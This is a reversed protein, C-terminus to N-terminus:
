GVLPRRDIYKQWFERLAKRREANDMGHKWFFCPIDHSDFPLITGEEATMIVKISRGLAYGLEIFCSPRESTLDIVALSAFHLNEFIAVNLFPEKTPDSGIELHKFGAEEVVCDVVNRFFDEVRSFATVKSNLLRVYFATPACLIKLLDIVRSAVTNVDESGGRTSLAAYRAGATGAFASQLSFFRSPENRAEASLRMSGGTGDERSAGLSLDIPIVPYRRDMYLRASHEVGTGGGLMVLIDGVQAQRDRIMTASRAGPQVYEVNVFGGDLLDHWLSLRENPIESVAKESTVVQIPPGSVDSWTCGASHFCDAATELATWDFILSPGDALTNSPRPEKGVNLVLGGGERLIERTIVSVFEHAYKVLQPDTSQSASGSIQVRRGQLGSHRPPTVM